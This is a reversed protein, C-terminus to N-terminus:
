NALFSWVNREEYVMPIFTDIDKKAIPRLTQISKSVPMRTVTGNAAEVEVHQLRTKQEFRNDHYIIDKISKRSRSLSAQAFFKYSPESNNIQKCDLKLPSSRKFPSLYTNRIVKKMRNKRSTVDNLTM